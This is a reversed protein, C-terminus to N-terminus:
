LKQKSVWEGGGVCEKTPIETETEFDSITDFENASCHM